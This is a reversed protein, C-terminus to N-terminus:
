FIIIIGIPLALLMGDIRDLIGGHGPLIFGTDKLGSKRKLFSILLDGIQSILSILVIIIFINLEFFILDNYFKNFSYGFIIALIFSGLLGSYTKNPSIKTIKKGGIIKGFIYGGIDTSICLVLLFYLTFNNNSYNLHFIISLSFFVLYLLSLFISLFYYFKNKTFIIKFLRNFEILSLFSVFILLLFIYISYKFSLFLILVLVASSIFRLLLNNM